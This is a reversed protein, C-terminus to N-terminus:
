ERTHVRPHVRPHVSTASEIWTFLSELSSILFTVPMFKNKVLPPIHTHVSTASEIRAFPKAQPGKVDALTLRSIFPTCPTLSDRVGFLIPGRVKHIISYRLPWSIFPSCRTLITMAGKHLVFAFWSSRRSNLWRVGCTISSCIPVALWLRPPVGM